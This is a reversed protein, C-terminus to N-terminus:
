TPKAKIINVDILKANQLASTFFDTLPDERASPGWAEAIGLSFNLEGGIILNRNLLLDKSLFNKWFPARGQYPGYVNIFLLPQDFEASLVEMGLVHPLGWSNQTKFRGDKFGIALGGSHGNADLASFSWGPFLSKLSSEIDSGKGLTEQLFVVDPNHRTILDKLALKKPKSALGRSNWSLCIM